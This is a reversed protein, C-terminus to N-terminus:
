RLAGGALLGTTSPRHPRGITGPAADRGARMAGFVRDYAAHDGALASGGLVAHTIAALLGAGALVAAIAAPVLISVV